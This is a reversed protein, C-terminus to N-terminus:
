APLSGYRADVLKMVHVRRLPGDSGETDIQEYKVGVCEVELVMKTVEGITFQRPTPALAERFVKTAGTLTVTAARVSQGEFLSLQDNTM